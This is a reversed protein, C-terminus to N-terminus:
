CLVLCEFLLWKGKALKIKGKTTLELLSNPVLSKYLVLSRKMNSFTNRIQTELDFCVLLSILIQNIGQNNTGLPFQFCSIRYLVLSRKMNSITNGIQTELDFCVLLPL